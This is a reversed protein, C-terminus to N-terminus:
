LLNYPLTYDDSNETMEATTQQPAPQRQPRPKTSPHGNETERNALAQQLQALLKMTPELDIEAIRQRLDQLLRSEHKGGNQLTASGEQTIRVLGSRRHAPNSILEVLGLRQLRNVVIQVNQRSSNRREAIAPVTQPGNSELTELVARGVALPQQPDDLVFASRKIQNALIQVQELLM